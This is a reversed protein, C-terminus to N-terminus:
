WINQRTNIWSQNLANSMDLKLTNYCKEPNLLKYIKINNWKGITSNNNILIDIKHKGKFRKNMTDQIQYIGDRSDTGEIKVLDGYHLGYQKMMSREMAIIKHSEPDNLNLKFLSATHQIDTNCQNHKAHYVTAETDSCMLEWEPENSYNVYSYHEEEDSVYFQEAHVVNPDCLEYYEQDSLTFNCLVATLLTGILIGEKAYKKVTIKIEDFSNCQKLEKLFDKFHFDISENLSEVIRDNNKFLCLIVKYTEHEQEVFRIWGGIKEDNTQILINYNYYQSQSTRKDLLIDIDKYEEKFDILMKHAVEELESLTYSHKVYKNAWIDMCGFIIDNINSM